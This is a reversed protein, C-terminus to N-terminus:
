FPLDDEINQIKDIDNQSIPTPEKKEVPKARGIYVKGEEEKKEKTSNLQISHTNGYDDKEDNEWLIINVYVKGNNQSKVFSSHKRKAADILDTFCISGTSLKSM